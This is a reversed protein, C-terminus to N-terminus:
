CNKGGGYAFEDGGSWLSWCGTNMNFQVQVAGFNLAYHVSDHGGSVFDVEDAQLERCEANGTELLINADMINRM